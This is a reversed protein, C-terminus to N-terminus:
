FSEGDSRAVHVNGRADGGQTDHVFAVLDDAGDGNFDGTGCVEQGVCFFDAWQEAPTPIFDANSARPAVFILIFVVGLPLFLLAPGAPWRARRGLLSRLRAM